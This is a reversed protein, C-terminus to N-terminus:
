CIKNCDEWCAMDGVCDTPMMDCFIPVLPVVIEWQCCWCEASVCSWAHLSNHREYWDWFCCSFWCCGVNLHGIWVVVVVVWGVWGVQDGLVAGSKIPCVMMYQDRIELSLFPIGMVQVLQTETNHEIRYYHILSHM